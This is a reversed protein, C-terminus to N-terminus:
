QWAGERSAGVSDRLSRIAYHLRSKVTGPQIGLRAAIQDVTLDVYYRLIIVERHEADLVRLGAALVERRAVADAHDESEVSRWHELADDPITSVRKRSRLRDRCINALIRGFWADFRDPDRLDGWRRWANLAADNVADEAETADALMLTAYRYARDLARRDLLRGFAEERTEQRILEVRNTVTAIPGERSFM